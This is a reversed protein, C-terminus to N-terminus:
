AGQFAHCFGGLGQRHIKGHRPCRRRLLRRIGKRFAILELLEVGAQYNGFRLDLGGTEKETLLGKKMCEMVFGIVNGASVTDMGLDDCLYNAKLISPLYDVDLNSGLLGITEYEPGELKTGKYPGEKM